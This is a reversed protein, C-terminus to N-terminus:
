PLDPDRGCSLVAIMSDWTRRQSCNAERRARGSFGQPALAKWMDRGRQRTWVPRDNPLWQWVPGRGNRADGPGSVCLLSAPYAVPPDRESRQSFLQASISPQGIAVVENPGTEYRNSSFLVGRVLPPTMERSTLM